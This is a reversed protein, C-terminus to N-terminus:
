AFIDGFKMMRLLLALPCICLFLGKLPQFSRLNLLFLRQANYEILVTPIIFDPCRVNFCESNSAAELLFFSKLM